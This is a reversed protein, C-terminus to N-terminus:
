TVGHLYNPLNTNKRLWIRIVQNIKMPETFPAFITIIRIELLLFDSNKRNSPNRTVAANEPPISFTPITFKERNPLLHPSHDSFLTPFEPQQIQKLRFTHTADSDNTDQPFGFYFLLGGDRFDAKEEFYKGL